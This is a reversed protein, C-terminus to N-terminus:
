SSFKRISYITLRFNRCLAAATQLPSFLQSKKGSSLLNKHTFSRFHLPPNCNRCIHIHNRLCQLKHFPPACVSDAVTVSCVIRLLQAMHIGLNVGSIICGSFVICPCFCVRILNLLHIDHCREIICSFTLQGNVQHVMQIRVHELNIGPIIDGAPPFHNVTCGTLHNGRFLPLVTVLCPIHGDM